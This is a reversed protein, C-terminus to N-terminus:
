ERQVAPYALWEHLSWVHDTLGATMAPSRPAWHGGSMRVRLTRVPRCFNYTYMTFYTVAEHLDGDKSFCYTKRVGCRQGIHEMVAAIQQQPLTAGFFITGKRESFRSKCTRCRLMRRANNPGYHDCVTLNGAGRLGHEPCESNRCCFRSPDDM